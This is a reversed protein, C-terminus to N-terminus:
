PQSTSALCILMLHKLLLGLTLDLRVNRRLIGPCPFADLLDIEVVQSAAAGGYRAIARGLFLLLVVM